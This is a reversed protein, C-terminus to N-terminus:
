DRGGAAALAEAGGAIDLMDSTIAQQRAKNYQIRLAEVLDVANESASRMAVMRAAHESALSELIAQYVQLATFRPVIENVLAAESPEYLYAPHSPGEERQARVEVELPLLKRIMAEQHLLNVFRTYALYIQDARAQEFEDVVLRGIASVDAFTPEPPLSSFEAVINVQRRSMIDRGKRGIIVYDVPASSRNFHALTARVINSYFAGALGRDGTIMVVLVRRVEPRETLLPHVVDRGAQSALHTLVDWARDAYPRTALVLQQARRVRSASVAELARTVQGINAVSQMRRRMERLSPM